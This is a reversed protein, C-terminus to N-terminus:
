SNEDIWAEIRDLEAMTLGETPDTTVTLYTGAPVEEITEYVPPIDRNYLAPPVGNRVRPSYSFYHSQDYNTRNAIDDVWVFKSPNRKQDDVIAHGKNRQFYGYDGGNDQWPLFGASEIGLPADLSYPAGEMWATLWVVDVDSRKSLASLRAIVEPYYYFNGEKVTVPDRFTSKFITAWTHAPLQVTDEPYLIPQIVGDVDLYIRFPAKCTKLNVAYRQSLELWEAKPMTSKASM